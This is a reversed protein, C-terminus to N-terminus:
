PNGSAENRRRADALVFDVDPTCDAVVFIQYSFLAKSVWILVSNIGVLFRSFPGDGLAKPFPGPIGRLARIRFGGDRLLHRVGRFTFLRSHTRDLIGARGYNFQGLM